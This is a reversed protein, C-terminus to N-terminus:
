KFAASLWQENANCIISAGTNQWLYLTWRENLAMVPIWPSSAVCSVYIGTTFAIPPAYIRNHYHAEPTPRDADVPSPYYILGDPTLYQADRVNRWLHVSVLGSSAAALPFSAHAKVKVKTAWSPVIIQSNAVDSAGAEDNVVTDLLGKVYTALSLTGSAVTTEIELGNLFTEGRQYLETFNDNIKDGGVRLGDGMHDEALTGINIIQQTM